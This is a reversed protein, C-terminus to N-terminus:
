QKLSGRFHRYTNVITTGAEDIAYTLSDIKSTFFNYCIIALASTSIGTATNIL